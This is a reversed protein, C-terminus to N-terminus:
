CVHAVQVVLKMFLIFFEKRRSRIYSRISHHLVFLKTLAFVNLHPKHECFAYQSVLVTWRFSAAWFLIYIIVLIISLTFRINSYHNYVLFHPFIYFYHKVQCQLYIKCRRVDQVNKVNELLFGLKIKLINIQLIHILM